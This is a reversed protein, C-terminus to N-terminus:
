ADEKEHSPDKQFSGQERGFPAKREGSWERQGRGEERPRFQRDRSFSGRDGDRDRPAFSRREGGGFGGGSRPAFSRQEGDRPPFSRREGGGDRPAFSRRDGGDRQVFPRREGDRPPFSRREGEPRDFGGARPAFPKREGDGFRPRGFSREGDRAFPPRPTWERRERPPGRDSSRDDRRPRDSFDRRRDGFAGDVPRPRNSFGGFGGERQGERPARDSFGSERRDNSFSPRPRSDGYPRATRSFERPAGDRNPREGDRQFSGRREFPAGNGPASERRREGGFGRDDRQYSRREGQFSGRDGFGRGRDDQRFSSSGRDPRRQEFAPQKQNDEESIMPRDEIPQFELSESPVEEAENSGSLLRTKEEETLARFSGVEVTGLVLSGLRIRKLSVTELGAAELLHRVERKKGEGIVIRLTGNRIKTVRIPAVQVGEVMTGASIAKLHEDDIEKDAKVIYEKEINRSPHIVDDAFAGDNTVLLLGETEKDLRGVTFLRYEIDSFLDLVRPEGKTSCVYGRPKNLLYYVKESEPKVPEGDLTVQDEPLVPTTLAAVTGNVAVRGALILEEAARRSAIGASALFRNLRISNM